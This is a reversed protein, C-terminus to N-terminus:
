HASSPGSRGTTVRRVTLAGDHTSAKAVAKEYAATWAAQQSPTAATYQDVAAQVDPRDPLTRLPNLM